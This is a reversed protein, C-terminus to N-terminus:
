CAWRRWRVKRREEARELKEQIEQQTLLAKKKRRKELKALRAPPARRPTEDSLLAFSVGSKAKHTDTAILGENKLSALIDEENARTRSKASLSPLTRRSNAVICLTEM